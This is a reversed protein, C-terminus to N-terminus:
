AAFRIVKPRRLERVAEAMLAAGILGVVLGGSPWAAWTWIIYGAMANLAGVMFWALCKLTKM